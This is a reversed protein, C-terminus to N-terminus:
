RVPAAVAAGDDGTHLLGAPTARRAIDAGPPGGLRATGSRRIGSAPRERHPDRLITEIAPRPLGVLLRKGRAASLRGIGWEPLLVHCHHCLRQCRRQFIGPLGM